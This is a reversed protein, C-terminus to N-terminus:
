TTHARPTHRSLLSAFVEQTCSSHPLGAHCPLVKDLMNIVKEREARVGAEAEELRRRLEAVEPSAGDDQVCAAGTSVCAPRPGM